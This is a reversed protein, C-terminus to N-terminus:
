AFSPSEAQVAEAAVAKPEATPKSSIEEHEDFDMSVSNAKYKAESNQGAKATTESDDNDDDFLHADDSTSAAHKLARNRVTKCAMEDPFKTHAPTLGNGKRQNWAAHIQPKTMITLERRGDNYDVTCYAGKIKTGDGISELTQKHQTIRKNGTEADVEFSFEDGEYIASASVNKVGGARKAILEKGHYSISCELKGGYAIFHCQDKIVSLGNTLMKLLAQGVSAPTCVTLVPHSDKDVAESLYLWASNLANVPSYNKPFQGEGGEQTQKIISLVKEKVKEQRVALEKKADKVPAQNNDQSM